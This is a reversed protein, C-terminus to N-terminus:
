EPVTVKYVAKNKEVTEPSMLKDVKRDYTMFGNVEIEVDTVRVAHEGAIKPLNALGEAM